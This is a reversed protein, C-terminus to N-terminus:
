LVSQNSDNQKTYLEPKISCIVDVSGLTEVAPLKVIANQKIMRQVGLALVVTIVAPLGEPIIAVALSISVLLIEVLEKGQIVAMAFILLCIMLAGIGLYKSLKELRNQLPTKIQDVNGIMAAIKGVETDMGISTVVGVGRGYTAYSSMFAMNKLDGLATNEEDIVGHM